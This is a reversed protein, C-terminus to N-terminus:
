PKAPLPGEDRLYARMAISWATECENCTATGDDPDTYYHMELLSLPKNCARCRWATRIAEASM